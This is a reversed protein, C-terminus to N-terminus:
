RRVRSDYQWRRIKKATIKGADPHRPNIVVNFEEPVIVSPVFAIASSQAACWNSGWDISVKGAPLADWGVLLAPDAKSASKWLASPVNLKVLYRNLPLDRAGLHVLTELVALAITPSAYLM